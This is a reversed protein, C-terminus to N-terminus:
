FVWFKPKELWKVQTNWTEVIKPVRFPHSVVRAPPSKCSEPFQHLHHKWKIHHRAEFHEHPPRSPAVAKRPPLTHIEMFGFVVSSQLCKKPFCENKASMLQQCQQVFCMKLECKGVGRGSIEQPLSLQLIAKCPSVAFRSHGHRKSWRFWICCAAPSTFAFATFPSSNIHTQNPSYGNEPPWKPHFFVWM